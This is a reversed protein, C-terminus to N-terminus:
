KLPALYHRKNSCLHLSHLHHKQLIKDQFGSLRSKSHDLRSLPKASWREQPTRTPHLAVSVSIFEGPDDLIKIINFGNLNMLFASYEGRAVTIIGVNLRAPASGNAIFDARM